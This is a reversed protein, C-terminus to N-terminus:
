LAHLLDIYLDAIRDWSTTQTYYQAKQAMKQALDEDRLLTRIGSAIDTPHCSPIQYTVAAVDKFIDLNTTIVPRGAGLAFRVAGSASEPTDTYPLVLLDSLQLFLGAEEPDIFQTSLLVCSSLQLEEISKRVTEAFQQSIDDRHLACQAVLGLNPYEERLKKVAVLLESIGKHPLLFGFTGVVPTLSVGIARRLAWRDEIPFVVNGHPLLCVNDEILFSALRGQDIRNHVLLLDARRLSEAIQALSLVRGSVPTDATRHFTIIVKRDARKLEDITAGLEQLDFFGFNFQFHVIEFGSELVYNRLVKLDGEPPNKWCVRSPILHRAWIGEGPSSLVAVQLDSCKRTLAELLYRSYEAIGCRADWSTVMALRLRSRPKLKSDMFRSLIRACRKATLSWRFNRSIHHYAADVKQRVIETDKHEVLFRMLARLQGVNPEAWKSGVLNFHSKSDVLRYDTLFATDESCFDMHGGYGTVIVPLRRAMAEAIPLGFGEARTPYVMCDAMQYLKELEDQEIDRDIHICEPPDPTRAQWELLQQGVTNHINPFTKIILCVDDSATFESFFAELLVDVGKRPFGSSVHLFAFSKDTLTTSSEKTLSFFREEVGEHLLYIPIRVGSNRMAKEVHRSPALIAHLWRNFNQVWDDPLLSDEWAFYLLNMKGPVDHVRPPYLNRIVIDPQATLMKSKEWLWRAKPKDTLAQEAPAYDGPGETCYISVDFTGEEDLALAFNRNVIALSYSTEFPGQIQLTPRVNELAVPATGLANLLDLLTATTRELDFEALRARQRDVITQRFATNRRLEEIIEGWLDPDKEEVLVGAHGLTDPVAAARFAVVPLEFTMAELLPVGFGDHESASLFIHSSRYYAVLQSLNIAGTLVIVQDLGRAKIESRIDQAYEENGDWSGVLILRSAKNHVRYYREFIRILDDQKKNPSIRGVFLLNFTQRFNRYVSSDPEQRLLRHRNFFIPLVATYKYGVRLLEALNYESDAVAFEIHRLYERLQIRGLLSYTQLIANSFFHAPTINHYRLIKRDPLGVVTDFRDFGMSHHVILLSSTDGPYDSIPRIHTKLSPAIHEAFIESQFGASHLASQMELMDNTVADGLATGSHFQHVKSFHTM